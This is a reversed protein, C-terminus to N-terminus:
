ESRTGTTFKWSLNTMTGKVVAAIDVRYTKNADLAAQPVLAIEDSVYGHAPDHGAQGDAYYALLQVPTGAADDTLTASAVSEIASKQFTGWNYFTASPIFGGKNCTGGALPNDPNTPCPGESGSFARPVDIMGSVPWLTPAALKETVTNGAARYNLCNYGNKSAAGVKMLGPELLPRRHYLGNIWLDVGSGFAQGGNGSTSGGWSLDSQMGAQENAASYHSNAHDPEDHTLTVKGTKMQEEILYDLHGECGASSAEDLTVMGGGIATRFENLHAIGANIDGVGFSPPYKIPAGTAGADTAISGDRGGGADSSAAGAAGGGVGSAGSTGSSGGGVGQTGGSSSGGSAGSTTSSGGGTGGNTAGASGAAASGGNSDDGGGCAALWCAFLACTVCRTRM